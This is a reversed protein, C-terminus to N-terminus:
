ILEKKKKPLRIIVQTGKPSNDELTIDGQHKRIIGFTVSLGLGM